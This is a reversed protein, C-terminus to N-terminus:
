EDCIGKFNNHYARLVLTDHMCLAQLPSMPKTQPLLTRVESLQTDKNLIKEGYANLRATLVNVHEVPIGRKHFHHLLIGVIRQIRIINKAMKSHNEQEADYLKIYPKEILVQSVDMGALLEVARDATELIDQGIHILDANQESGCLWSIYLPHVKLYLTEKM